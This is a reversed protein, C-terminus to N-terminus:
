SLVLSVSFTLFVLFWAVLRRAPKKCSENRSVIELVVDASREDVFLDYGDVFYEIRHDPNVFYFNQGTPQVRYKSRHGKQLRTRRGGGVIYRLVICSLAANPLFLFM